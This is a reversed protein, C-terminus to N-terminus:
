PSIICFLYHDDFNLLFIMFQKKALYRSSTMKLLIHLNKEFLYKEHFLFTEGNLFTEWEFTTIIILVSGVKSKGFEILVFDYSVSPYDPFPRM